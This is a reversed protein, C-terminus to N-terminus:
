LINFIHNYSLPQFNTKNKFILCLARGNILTQCSCSVSFQIVWIRDRILISWIAKSHHWYCVTLGLMRLYSSVSILARYEVKHNHSLKIEFELQQMNYIKCTHETRWDLNRLKTGAKCRGLDSFISKHNRMNSFNKDM